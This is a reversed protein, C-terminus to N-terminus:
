RVYGNRILVEAVMDAYFAMGELSPHHDSPFSGSLREPNSVPRVVYDLTKYVPRGVLRGLSELLARQREDVIYEQDKKFEPYIALHVPVVPIGTAKLATVDARTRPDQAFDNLAHRPNQSPKAHAFMDHFPNGYALLNFALSQSPDFPDFRLSSRQRSEVVLGELERIIPDDTAGDAQRALCWQRTARPDLIATDTATTYDPNPDPTVSTMARPKGNVVTKTRWFRGRTLDDTIFAVVAIDPKFEAVKAKALDFMQLLGTGDRGFNMVHVSKGLRRALADQLFNPWAVREGAKNTRQQATWSDGFVLIKLQATDYDGKIRGINGRKNTIWDWCSTVKGNQISGGYFTGPKYVYGFERDFRWPTDEFFWVPPRESAAPPRVFKDPQTHYLYYRYGAETGVFGVGLGVAILVANLAWQIAKSKGNEAM